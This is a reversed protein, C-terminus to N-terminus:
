RQWVQTWIYVVNAYRAKSPAGHIYSILLRLTLIILRCTFNLGTAQPNLPGNLIKGFQDSKKVFILFIQSSKEIHPNQTYYVTSHMCVFTENGTKKSIGAFRVSTTQLSVPLTCIVYFKPAKKCGNNYHIILLYQKNHTHTARLIWYAIRM